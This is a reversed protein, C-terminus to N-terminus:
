TGARPPAPQIDKSWLQEGAANVIAIRLTRSEPDIEGLGFFQLGARPSNDPVPAPVAAFAMEPGFTPDLPNMTLNGTGANIPGAVIEWFPEFDGSAARDPHYHIAAAYHVDASIWITNAIRERRIFALLDAIQAERGGPAGPRGNAIAEIGGAAVDKNLDPVTLSLPMDSAILKWTATSARLARKLWTVQDAEMIGAGPGIAAAGANPAKRSREDLLFVDLLPGMSFSRQIGTAGRGVRMPNFDLMAQRSWSALARMGPGSALPKDPFWNNRVEHDDWQVFMPVEALFRRKNADLLNYAFAGRFDDLSAAIRAKAPTMLNRWTGGGALAVEAELPVDAYIQDGQHIFLDPELKRMAEYIRYGGLDPNIGYGQGAEDGAFTFRIPRLGNGPLRLRGATWPGIARADDPDHFAVRYHLAEGPPLGDLDLRATLGSAATALPGDRRVVQAFDPDRSWEVIMRAPRDAAAWIMARDSLLDGSMVGFPMTPRAKDPVFRAPARGGRLWVGSLALGGIVDRRNM